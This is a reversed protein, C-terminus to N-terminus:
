NLKINAVSKSYITKVMNLYPDQIESRELVKIIFPNPIKDFAKEPALLIIIHNKLKSVYQIINISKLINFWGQM